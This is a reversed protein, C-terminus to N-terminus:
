AMFIQGNAAFVMGHYAFPGAKQEIGPHQSIHEGFYGKFYPGEELRSNTEFALVIEDMEPLGESALFNLSFTLRGGCCQLPCLGLTPLHKYESTLLASHQIRTLDVLVSPSYTTRMNIM